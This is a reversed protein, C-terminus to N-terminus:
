LIWRAAAMDAADGRVWTALRDMDSVGIRLSVVSQRQSYQPEGEEIPGPRGASRGSQLHSGVCRTAFTTLSPSDPFPVAFVLRM